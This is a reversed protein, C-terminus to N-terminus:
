EHLMSKFHPKKAVVIPCQTYCILDKNKKVKLIKM